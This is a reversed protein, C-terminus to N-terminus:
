VKKYLYFNSRTNKGSSFGLEKVLEPFITHLNNELKNGWVSLGFLCGSVSHDYLNKLMKEPDPTLM